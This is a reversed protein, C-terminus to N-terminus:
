EDSFIRQYTKSRRASAERAAQREEPSGMAAIVQRERVLGEDLPTDLAGNLLLKAARMAYPAKEALDAAFQEVEAVLEAAPLVRDVLGAKLAEAATMATGTMVMAKARALGVIRPLRQTGGAAPLAGFNIEPVGISAEAAMWRFDCALTVECGGGMAAGNIVAVVPKSLAEIHSIFERRPDGITGDANILQEIERLDAGGCFHQDGAGRLLVVRVGADAELENLADNFDITLQRNITNARDPRNLTLWALPGRRHVTLTEFGSGLEGM